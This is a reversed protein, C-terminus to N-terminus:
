RVRIKMLTIIIFRLEDTDLVLYIWEFSEYCKDKILDM